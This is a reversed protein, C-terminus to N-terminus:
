DVNRSSRRPCASKRCHSELNEGGDTSKYVGDGAYSSRSSSNEGTGVWLINKDAKSIAIDGITISGKNDFIPTMTNGSNTTEFVGGSAYAVYFHRPNDEHAAIDTVRDSMVVPGVNRVPYEKFVSQQRIQKRHEIANAREDPNSPEINQASASLSGFLMTILLSLTFLLRMM